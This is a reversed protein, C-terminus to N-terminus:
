TRVPFYHPQLYDYYSVSLCVCKKRENTAGAIYIYLCTFYAMSISFWCLLQNEVCYLSLSDSKAVTDASNGSLGCM